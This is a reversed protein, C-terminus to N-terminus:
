KADVPAKVNMLTPAAAFSKVGAVYILRSAFQNGAM